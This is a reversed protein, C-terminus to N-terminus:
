QVKQGGAALADQVQDNPILHVIGNPAKVKTSGAPSSTPQTTNSVPNSISRPTFNAPLDDGTLRNFATATDMKNNVGFQKANHYAINNADNQVSERTQDIVQKAFAANEPSITGARATTYLQTLRDNVAKSGNMNTILTQPLRSGNVTLQTLLAPIRNAQAPDTTAQALAADADDALGLKGQAAKYNTDGNLSKQATQLNNYTQQDLHQQYIDNRADRNQQAILARLQQTQQASLYKEIPGMGSSIDSASLGDLNNVKIGMQKVVDQYFSSVPSTPDNAAKETQLAMQQKALDGINKQNAERTELDTAGNMSNKIAENTLTDDPKVTFGRGMGGLAASLHTLAQLQEQQAQQKRGAALQAAMAQDSFDPSVGALAAAAADGPPQAMQATSAAALQDPTPTGAPQARPPITLAEPNLTGKRASISAVPSGTEDNVSVADNEDPDQDLFSGVQTSPISELNLSPFVSSAM